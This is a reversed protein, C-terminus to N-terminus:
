AQRDKADRCLRGYLWMQKVQVQCRANGNEINQKETNLTQNKFKRITSHMQLLALPLADKSDVHVRQILMQILLLKLLQQLLDNLACTGAKIIRRRIM